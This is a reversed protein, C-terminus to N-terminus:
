QEWNILGLPSQTFEELAETNFACRGLYWNIPIVNVVQNLLIDEAEQFM